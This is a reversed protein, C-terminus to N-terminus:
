VRADFLKRQPTEQQTKGKGEYTTGAVTQSLLNINYNIFGLAQKILETNLKNIPMMEEMIDHFERGFKELQEVVAPAAIKRLQDFSVEGETIGHSAMLESVLKGRLDELKGVQLILIEEQKTVTELEHSKAAVLVDHKQQSLTLIAQYINLMKSLVTLLEEWKDKM